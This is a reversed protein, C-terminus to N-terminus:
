ILGHRLQQSAHFVVGSPWCAGGAAETNQAFHSLRFVQNNNVLAIKSLDVRKDGDRTSLLMLAGSTAVLLDLAHVLTAPVAAFLSVACEVVQVGVDRHLRVALFASRFTIVDGM